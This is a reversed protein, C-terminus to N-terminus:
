ERGDGHGGQTTAEKHYITWTSLPDIEITVKWLDLLVQHRTFPDSYFDPLFHREATLSVNAPAQPSAHLAWVEGSSYRWVVITEELFGADNPIATLPHTSEWSELECRIQELGDM